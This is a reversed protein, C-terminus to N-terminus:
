YAANRWPTQKQEQRRTGAKLEARVGKLLPSHHLQLHFYVREEELHKQNYYKIVAVSVRVLVTASLPPHRLCFAPGQRRVLPIIRSVQKSRLQQKIQSCFLSVAVVPRAKSTPDKQACLLCIDSSSKVTLCCQVGRVPPATLSLHPSHSQLLPQM